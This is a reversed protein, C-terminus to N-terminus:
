RQEILEPRRAPVVPEIRSTKSPRGHPSLLIPSPKLAVDFPEIGIPGKRKVIDVSVGEAVPRVALRLAARSADHRAALPRMVFLLTM